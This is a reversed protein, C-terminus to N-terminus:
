KYINYIYITFTNYTLKFQSIFFSYFQLNIEKLDCKKETYILTSYVIYKRLLNFFIDLIIM